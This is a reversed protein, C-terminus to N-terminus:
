TPLIMYCAETIWIKGHDDVASSYIYVCRDPFLQNNNGM